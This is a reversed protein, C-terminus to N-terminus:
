GTPWQRRDAGLGPYQLGRNSGLRLTRVTPKPMAPVASRLEHVRDWHKVLAARRRGLDPAYLDPDPTLERPTLELGLSVDAVISSTPELSGAAARVAM